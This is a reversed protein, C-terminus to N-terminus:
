HTVHETLVEHGVRPHTSNSTSGRSAAFTAVLKQRLMATRPDVLTMNYSGNQNLETAWQNRQEATCESDMRMTILTIMAFKDLQETRRTEGQQLLHEFNEYQGREAVFDAPPAVAGMHYFANLYVRAIIVANTASPVLDYVQTWARKVMQELYFPLALDSVAKDLNAQAEDDNEDAAKRAREAAADGM